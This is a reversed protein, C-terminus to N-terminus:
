LDSVRLASTLCKMQIANACTIINEVIQMNKETPNNSRVGLLWLNPTHRFSIFANSDSAPWRLKDGYSLLNTLPYDGFKGMHHLLDISFGNGLIILYKMSFGKFFHEMFM